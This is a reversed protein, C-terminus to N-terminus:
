EIKTLTSINLKRFDARFRLGRKCFYNLGTMLQRPTHSLYVFCNKKNNFRNVNSQLFDEM